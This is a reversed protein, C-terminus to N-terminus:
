KKLKEYKEIREKKRKNYEEFLADQGYRYILFSIVMVVLYIEIYNTNLALIFFVIDVALILNWAFKSNKM